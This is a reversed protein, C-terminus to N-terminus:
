GEGLRLGSGVVRMLRARRREHQQLQHHRAPSAALHRAGPDSPMDYCVAARSLRLAVVRWSARRSGATEGEVCACSGHRSLSLAAELRSGCTGLRYGPTGLSNSPTGLSYDRTGM